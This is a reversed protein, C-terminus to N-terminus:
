RLIIRSRNFALLLLVASCVFPFDIARNITSRTVPFNVAVVCNSVFTRNFPVGTYHRSNARIVRRVHFTASNDRTAGGTNAFIDSSLFTRTVALMKWLEFANQLDFFLFALRLTRSLTPIDILKRFQSWFALPQESLRIRRRCVTRRCRHRLGVATSM